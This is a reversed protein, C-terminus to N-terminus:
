TSFDMLVLEGQDEKKLYKKCLMSSHKSDNDQM